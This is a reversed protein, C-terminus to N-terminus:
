ATVIAVAIMESTITVSMVITASVRTAVKAIFRVKSMGIITGIQTPQTVIRAISPATRTAVRAITTIM